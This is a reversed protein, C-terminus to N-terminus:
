PVVTTLDAEIGPISVTYRGPLLASITLATDGSRLVRAAYVPGSAATPAILASYAGDGKPAPDVVVIRGAPIKVTGPAAAGTPLLVTVTVEADGRPAALILRTTSARPGRGAPLAAPTTLAAAGTAYAVDAVNKASRTVRVAALVPRDATVVVAAAQGNAAAGLDYEGVTGAKVELPDLGAPAFSNDQTLLRVRVIADTGGPVLLQLTRGLKGDPVGPLVVTRAPAAVPAIWDIGRPQIGAADIDHVAAAVRGGVADVGIALRQHGATMGDLPISVVGGPPVEIGSSNPPAPVPGAENWFRLDVLAPTGEPNTLVLRDRRGAATSAGVFWAAAAAQACPLSAVGRVSGRPALTLLEAALGPALDGTGRAVLPGLGGAALDVRGPAAIRARPGAGATGAGALDAFTAAGSLAAADTPGGDAPPAVLTATSTAGDGTVVPAPCALEAARVEDTIPDIDAAGSGGVVQAVVAVLALAGAVAAATRPGPLASSRRSAARGPRGHPATM